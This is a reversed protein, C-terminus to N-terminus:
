PVFATEFFQRIQDETDSGQHLEITRFPTQLVAKKAKTERLLDSLEKAAKAATIATSVLTVIEVITHLDFGLRIPDKVPTSKEIRFTQSGSVKSEVEKDAILKFRIDKMRRMKEFQRQGSCTYNRLAWEAQGRFSLRREAKDNLAIKAAASPSVLFDTWQLKDRCGV